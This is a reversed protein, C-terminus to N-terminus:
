ASAGFSWRVTMMVTQAHADSDQADANQWLYRYGASLTVREAITYDVGLDGAFATRKNGDANAVTGENNPRSKLATASGRFTMRDSLERVYSGTLQDLIDQRGSSGPQVSRSVELVLYGRELQRTFGARGYYNAGSDHEKIFGFETETDSRRYSGELTALTSEGLEYRLSLSPGLTTVDNTFRKGDSSYWSGVLGAGFTM